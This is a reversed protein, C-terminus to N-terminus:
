EHGAISSFGIGTLGDIPAPASRDQFTGDGLQGQGNEGWSWVQGQFRGKPATWQRGSTVRRTDRLALVHDSGAAIAVVRDIGEVLSVSYVPTANTSSAANWIVSWVKGGSDLAILRNSCASIAVIGRPDPLQKPKHPGFNETGSPAVDSGNGWVFLHGTTSVAASFSLGAAIAIAAPLDSVPIPYGVGRFNELFREDRHVGLQGNENSGWAFVVGNKNLALSHFTGAAILDVDNLGTSTPTTFSRLERISWDAGQAIQASIGSSTEQVSFPRAILDGIQGHGGNGWAYVEGNSRLALSHQGGGAVSVFESGEPIVTRVPRLRNDLTGDGLAASNRGWAWIRGRRDVALTHQAGASVAIIDAKPISLRTPTFTHSTTGNGVQGYFNGGWAHVQGNTINGGLSEQIPAKRAVSHLEGAAIVCRQRVQIASLAM